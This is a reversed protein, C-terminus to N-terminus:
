MVDVMVNILVVDLMSVLVNSTLVPVTVVRSLTYYAISDVGVSYSVSSSAARIVDLKIVGVTVDSSYQIRGILVRDYVSLCTFVVVSTTSVADTSGDVGSGDDTGPGVTEPASTTRRDDGRPRVRRCWRGRSVTVHQYPGWFRLEVSARSVGGLRREGVNETTTVIQSREVHKWTVLLVRVVNFHLIIPRRSIVFRPTKHQVMQACVLNRRQVTHQAHTGKWHKITIWHDVTCEEQRGLGVAVADDLDYRITSQLKDVGYANVTEFTCAIDMARCAFSFPISACQQEARHIGVVYEGGHRATLLSKRAFMASAGDDVYIVAQREVALVASHYRTWVTFCVVVMEYTGHLLGKGHLWAM